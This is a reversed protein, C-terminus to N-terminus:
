DVTPPLGGTLLAMKDRRWSGFNIPPAPDGLLPVIMADYDAELFFVLSMLEEDPVSESPPLVRHRTSRWRGDSWMAMLDGVNILLTGPVHPPQVWTGDLGQIELAGVGAQRDLVTVTSFDTHPGVRYAGPQVPGTHTFPPYWHVAFASTPRECVGLMVTPEIGLAVACAEVMARALREMQEVYGVVLPRLGPSEVPYHNAGFWEPTGARHYDDDPRGEPGFVFSEKADPPTDLGYSASATESGNRVWGRNHAIAYREKTAVDLAFFGRMTARLERALQGAVGHGSVLLFGWSRLADDVDAAIAARAESEGTWWDALDVTPLQVESSYTVGELKEAM